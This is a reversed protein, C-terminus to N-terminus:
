NKYLEIIISAHQKRHCHVGLHIKIKELFDRQSGPSSRLIQWSKVEEFISRVQTTDCPGEINSLHQKKHIQFRFWYIGLRERDSLPHAKFYGFNWFELLKASKLWTKYNMNGQMQSNCKSYKDYRLNQQGHCVIYCSSISISVVWSIENLQFRIEHINITFYMLM